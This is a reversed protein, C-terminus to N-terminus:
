QEAVKDALFNRDQLKIGCFPCYLVAHDFWGTGEETQIYGVTLFLTGNEQEWILANPQKMCDALDECCSGFPGEHFPESNSKGSMDDEYPELFFLIM